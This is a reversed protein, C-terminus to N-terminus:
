ELTPVPEIYDDERAKNSIRFIKHGNQYLRRRNEIKLPSKLGFHKMKNCKPVHTVNRVNQLM